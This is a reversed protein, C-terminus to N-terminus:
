FAGKGLKRRKDEHECFGHRYGYLAEIAYKLDMDAYFIGAHPYPKMSIVSEVFAKESFECEVITEIQARLRKKSTPLFSHCRDGVDFIKIFNKPDERLSYNAYAIFLSDKSKESV